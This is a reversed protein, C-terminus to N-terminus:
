CVISGLFYKFLLLYSISKIELFSSSLGFWSYSLFLVFRWWRCRGPSYLQRARQSLELLAANIQARAPTEEQENCADAGWTLKKYKKKNQESKGKKIKFNYESFYHIRIDMDISAVNYWRLNLIVQGKDSLGHITIQCFKITFYKHKSRTHERFVFHRDFGPYIFLDTTSSSRKMWDKRSENICVNLGNKDWVWM